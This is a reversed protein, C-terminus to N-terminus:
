WLRVGFHGYAKTDSGKGKDFSDSERKSMVLDVFLVRSAVVAVERASRVISRAHALNYSEVFSSRVLRSSSRGSARSSGDSQSLEPEPLTRADLSSFLSRRAPENENTIPNRETQLTLISMVTTINRETGRHQAPGEWRSRIEERERRREQKIRTARGLYGQLM